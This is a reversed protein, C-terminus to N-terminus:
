SLAKKIERWLDAKIRQLIQAKEIRDRGYLRREVLSLFFTLHDMIAKNTDRQLIAQTIRDRNIYKRVHGVYVLKGNYIGLDSLDSLLNVGLKIQGALVKAIGSIVEQSTRPNLMHEVDLPEYDPYFWAMGDEVKGERVIGVPEKFEPKLYPIKHMELVEHEYDPSRIRNEDPSKLVKVNYMGENLRTKFFIHHPTEKLEQNIVHLPKTGRVISVM